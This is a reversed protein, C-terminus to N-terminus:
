QRKRDTITGQDVIAEIIRTNINSMFLKWAIWVCDSNGERKWTPHYTEGVERIRIEYVSLYRTEQGRTFPSIDRKKDKERLFRSMANRTSPTVSSFGLKLYKDGWGVLYWTVQIQRTFTWINLDEKNRQSWKTIWLLFEWELLFAFRM